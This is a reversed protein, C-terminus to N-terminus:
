EGLVAINRWFIDSSIIIDVILTRNPNVILNIIVRNPIFYGKSRVEQILSRIFLM